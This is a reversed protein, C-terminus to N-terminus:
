CLGNKGEKIMFPGFMDVGLFTFPPSAEVCDMKQEEGKGHLLRCTVCQSIMYRVVSNGNIVWLGKKVFKM